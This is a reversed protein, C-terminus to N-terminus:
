VIQKRVIALVEEQTKNTAKSNGDLLALGVQALSYADCINDDVMTVGWRKFTELMMVDKKAAGNGTVYKKLSTPAVIVFPIRRDALLARTMYNLASLQVLATANRVMFVLGEIVAINYHLGIEILIKNIDDVIKRIRELEDTPKDGVPKSKVLEQHVIRGDQLIVVGTGVLSLDLGVSVIPKQSSDHM